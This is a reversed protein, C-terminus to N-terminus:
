QTFGRAVLRAKFRTIFGEANTKLDFVFKTTIEQRGKEKKAVQFTGHERLSDYESQIADKWYEKFKSELAEKVTDPIAVERSHLKEGKKTMVM